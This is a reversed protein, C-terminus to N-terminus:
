PGYYDKVSNHPVITNFLHLKLGVLFYGQGFEFFDGFCGCLLMMQKVHINYVPNSAKRHSIVDEKDNDTGTVALFCICSRPIDYFFYFLTNRYPLLFKGAIASAPHGPFM